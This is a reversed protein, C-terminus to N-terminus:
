GAAPELAARLLRTFVDTPQAGSVAIRSNAVVFPVGTVGIERATEEDGRVSAAYDDGDLVASAQGADLGAEAVCRLLAEPDDIAIGECFHASFLRELVAEELAPGGSDRALAVLRHGDFSNAALARIFDLALGDQAAVETVQETVAFAAERGGGFKAALQELLPVQGGRPMGPDLEYARHRVLVEHPRQWGSVAARIRARGIYCWPCVLDSWVDLVIVPEPPLADTAPSSPQPETM